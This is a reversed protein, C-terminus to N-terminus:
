TYGEERYRKTVVGIIALISAFALALPAMPGLADMWGITWLIWGFFCVIVTGFQSSTATFIGGVLFLLGISIFIYLDDPIDGLPVRIGKFSAAYNRYIDGFDNHQIHIDIFFTEGQYEDVLFSESWPGAGGGSWTDVVVSENGIVQRSINIDVSVTEDNLDLYWVTIEGQTGTTNTTILTTIRDTATGNVPQWPSAGYKILYYDDKPYVSFFRILEDDLWVEIDYKIANIMWFTVAGGEDTTATMPENHIQVAVTDLGILHRLWDWPGASFEVGTAIVTADPIPNGMYDQVVFKVAHSPYAVGVGGASIERVVVYELRTMTDTGASDTTVTLRINYKGVDEFIHEPHQEVSFTSWEEAGIQYEWQWATITTNVSLSEDTFYVTLPQYGLTPTATFSATIDPEEAAAIAAMSTLLLLAIFWPTLRRTTM